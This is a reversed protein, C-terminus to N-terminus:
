MAARNMVISPMLSSSGLGAAGQTRSSAIETTIGAMAM